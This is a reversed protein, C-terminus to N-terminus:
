ARGRRRRPPDPVWACRVSEVLVRPEGDPGFGVHTERSTSLREHRCRELFLIGLWWLGGLVLCSLGILPPVWWPVGLINRIQLSPPAFVAGALFTLSAGAVVAPLPDLWPKWRSLLRWSRGEPRKGWSVYDAIKLYLLGNSVLLGLLIVIVFTQLFTLVKYATEIPFTIGIALVLVTEVSWHLMTAAMPVQDVVHGLADINPWRSQRSASSSGFRAFLTDNSSSFFLPKPLVGEKAIEQKVRSGTYTQALLNGLIFIALVVYVGRLVGNNAAPQGDGALVREFMTAIMTTPLSGNGSYPVVCLYGVNVLPFLLLLTAMAATVAKAFHQRPSAVESLVYFPQEYGSYPFIAFVLGQVIDGFGGTGGRNVFSIEACGNGHMTGWVIGLLAVGVLFLVKISALANNLGIAFRRTSVNILATVTISGIAWGIIEAKHQDACDGSTCGPSRAAALYYGLQLANQAL